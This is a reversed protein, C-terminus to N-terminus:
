CGTLLPDVVAGLGNIHCSEDVNMGSNASTAATKDLPSLDADQLLECLELEEMLGREATYECSRSWYSSHLNFLGKLLIKFVVLFRLATYETAM